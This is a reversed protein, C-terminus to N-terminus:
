SWLAQTLQTETQLSSFHSENKSKVTAWFTIEVSQMKLKYQHRQPFLGTNIDFLHQMSQSHMGVAYSLIFVLRWLSSLVEDTNLAEPVGYAGYYWDM